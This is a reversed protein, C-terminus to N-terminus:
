RRKLSWKRTNLLAVFFASKLSQLKEKIQRDSVDWKDFKVRYQVRVDYNNLILDMEKIPYVLLAAFCRGKSTDDIEYIRTLQTEIEPNAMM